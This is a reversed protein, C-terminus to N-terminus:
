KIANPERATMESPNTGMRTGSGASTYMIKELVGDSDIQYTAVTFKSDAGGIFGGVIPIFTAGKVKVQTGAYGLMRKGNILSVSTPQGLKAIIESERTEGEKFQTAAQESVQTGSAACGALILVLLASLVYKMLNWTTPLHNLARNFGLKPYELVPYVM